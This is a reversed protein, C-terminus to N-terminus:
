APESALLGLILLLYLFAKRADSAHGRFRAGLMTGLDTYMGSVHTTRITAGSYTSVM